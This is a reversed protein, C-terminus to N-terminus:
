TGISFERVEPTRPDFYKVVRGWPFYVAKDMEVCLENGAGLLEYASQRNVENLM